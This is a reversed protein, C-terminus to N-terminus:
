TTMTGVAPDNEFGQVAELVTPSAVAIVQGIVHHNTEGFGFTDKRQRAYSLLETYARRRERQSTDDRMM